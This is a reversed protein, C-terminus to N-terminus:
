GKGNYYQVINVKETRYISQLMEINSSRLFSQCAAHLSTLPRKHANYQQVTIGHCSIPNFTYYNHLVLVFLQFSKTLYHQIKLVNSVSQGQKILKRGNGSPAKHKM